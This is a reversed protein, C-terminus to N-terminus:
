NLLQDLEPLLYKVKSLVVYKVLNISIYNMLRTNFPIVPNDSHFHNENVRAATLAAIMEQRLRQRLAWGICRRNPQPIDVPEVGAEEKPVDIELSWLEGPNQAFPVVSRAVDEVIRQALVGSCVYTAYDIANEQIPGYFGVINEGPVIAPKDFFFECDESNPITTSGFGSAYQEVTKTVPYPECKM